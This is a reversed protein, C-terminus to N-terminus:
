RVTETTAHAARAHFWIECKPLQTRLRDVGQATMQTWRLYLEELQKMQSMAAISADSCPNATLKLHKISKTTSLSAIAEDGLDSRVATVSKLEPMAALVSAVEKSVKCQTLEVSQLHPLKTLVFRLDPEITGKPLSVHRVLFVRDEGITAAVFTRQWSEPIPEVQSYSSANPADVLSVIQHQPDIENLRDLAVSQRRIPEVLTSWAALLVAALTVVILLLRLSFSRTRPYAM